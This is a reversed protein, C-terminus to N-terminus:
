LKKRVANLCKMRWKLFPLSSYIQCNNKVSLREVLLFKGDESLVSFFSLVIANRCARGEGREGTGAREVGGRGGGIREKGWDGREESGIQAAVCALTIPEQSLELRWFITTVTM